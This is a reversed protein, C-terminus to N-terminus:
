PPFFFVGLFRCETAISKMANAWRKGKREPWTLHIGLLKIWPTHRSHQWWRCVWNMQLIEHQVYWSQFHTKIFDRAFHLEYFLSHLFMHKRNWSTPQPAILTARCKPRRKLSKAGLCLHQTIQTWAPSFSLQSPCTDCGQDVTTNESHWSARREWRNKREWGGNVWKEM